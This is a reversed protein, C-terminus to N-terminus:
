ALDNLVVRVSRASGVAEKLVRLRPDPVELRRPLVRGRLDPDRSGTGALELCRAVLSRDGGCVLRLGSDHLADGLIDRVAQGAAGALEDAQNSRRRAFRQQSWGGAKTQGQVYRTGCRSEALEAGRVLGVAFGGRRVLVLGFDAFSEAHEVLEALGGAPPGVRPCPLRFEARAGDAARVVAHQGGSDWVVDGHRDGFRQVWGALREPAVSVTRGSHSM